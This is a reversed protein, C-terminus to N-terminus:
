AVRSVTAGDICLLHGTVALCEADPSMMADLRDPGLQWVRAGTRVAYATWTRPARSGRSSPTVVVVVRGDTWAGQLYMGADLGAGMGGLPGATWLTAGSAVDLGVLEGRAEAGHRVLVMVGDAEAVAGVTAPEDRASWLTTGDPGVAWLREGDRVLLVGAADLGGTGDTALPDLVGGPLRAVRQGTRDYVDTSRTWPVDWPEGVFGESVAVGGGALTRVRPWATVPRPTTLYRSLVVGDPAVVVSIGCTDLQVGDETVASSLAGVDFVTTLRGDDVCGSWDGEDEVRGVPVTTTWLTEGSVADEATLTVPPADFATSFRWLWAPDEVFELGAPLPGHRETRWVTGGPGPLLRTTEDLGDPTRRILHGDPGVVVVRSTRGRGTTCVLRPAVAPVASRDWGLNVSGTGCGTADGVPVRWLREGTEVDLGHLWWGSDRRDDVIAPPPEALDPDPVAVVVVDDQAGDLVGVTWLPAAAPDETTALTQSWRTRVPTSLDAVAGTAALLRATDARDRLVATVAGSGVVLAAALSGAVLQAPTRARLWAGARRGARTLLSPAVAPGDGPRRSADGSGPDGGDPAAGGPLGAGPVDDDPAEDDPVLEFALVDQGGDHAM